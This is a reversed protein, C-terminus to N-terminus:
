SQRLKAHLSLVINRVHRPGKPIGRGRTGGGITLAAEAFNQGGRIMRDAEARLHTSQAAKRRAIADRFATGVLTLSRVM